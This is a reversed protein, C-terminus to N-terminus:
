ERKGRERAQHVEERDVIMDPPASIGLRVKGSPLVDIVTIVIQGGGIMIKENVRRALVLM